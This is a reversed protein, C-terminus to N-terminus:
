GVITKLTAVLVGEYGGDATDRLQEPMWYLENVVVKAAFQTAGTMASAEKYDVITQALRLNELYLYEAYPDTFDTWGEMENEQYLQLAAFIYIGSVVNPLAKITYRNLFPRSDDAHSVSGATLVVQIEIEEAPTLPAVLTPPNAQIMPALPALSQFAGGDYAVQLTISGGAADFPAYFNALGSKLNAQAVTKNDQMDWTLRGSRLYGTAVYKTANAISVNYDQTYLGTSPVCMLPGNTLPCWNLTHHADKSTVSAVVTLDSAYAPQLEAVFNGLDLRGLAWYTTGNFNMQPWVFWVFRGYGVIGSVFNGIYPEWPAQIPQTLNPLLPGSVLDGANGSPDYQSITRCCRIGLNTGVFVFNEYAYLSGAFEGAALKLAPLGVALNGTTPLGGTGPSVSFQYIWSQGVSAVSPDGVVGCGYIFSEGATFDLWKWSANPHQMVLYAQGAALAQASGTCATIDWVQPGVTVILRDAVYYVHDVVDTIIQTWSAGGVPTYWVGPYGCAFINAGDTALATMSTGQTLSSPLGSPTHWTNYDQTWELSYADNIGGTGINRLYYIYGQAVATTQWPYATPSADNTRQVTAPLLTVQNESWPDVGLSYLFRLPDSNQRDAYLQGGGHHWSIQGRRWLGETNITGEGPVDNLDISERQSPITDHHTSQRRFAEYSTDVAYSHTGILVPYRGPFDAALGAM